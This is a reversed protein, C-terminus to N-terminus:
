LVLCPLGLFTRELLMCCVISQVCCDTGPFDLTMTSYRLICLTIHTGISRHTLMFYAHLYIHSESHRNSVPYVVVGRKVKYARKGAQLNNRAKVKEHSLHQVFICFAKLSFRTMTPRCESFLEEKGPTQLEQVLLLHGPWGLLLFLSPLWMIKIGYVM